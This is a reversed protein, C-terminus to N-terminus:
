ALIFLLAVKSKKIASPIPYFNCSYKLLLNVFFIKYYLNINKDTIGAIDYIRRIMMNVMSENYDDINFLNFDVIWSIKTYPKSKVSTIKPSNKINMNNRFEQVYKLGRIHDVTEVKFWSSFLNVLKAGFGNKGGTTKGKKNYNKSTLLEGIIVVKSSSSSPLTVSVNVLSFSSPIKLISCITSSPIKFVVVYKVLKDNSFWFNEKVSVKCIGFSIVKFLPM